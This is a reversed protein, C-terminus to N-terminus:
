LWFNDKIWFVGALVVAVIAAALFGAVILLMTGNVAIAAFYLPLTFGDALLRSVFEGVREIFDEMNVM